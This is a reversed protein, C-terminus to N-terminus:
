GSYLGNNDLSLKIICGNFNYGDNTNMQYCCYFSFEIKISGWFESIVINLKIIFNHLAFLCVDPFLRSFCGSIDTRPDM